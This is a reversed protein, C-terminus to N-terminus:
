AQIAPLREFQFEEEECQDLHMASLQPMVADEFPTFFAERPASSKPMLAWVLDNDSALHLMRMHSVAYKCWLRDHASGQGSAIIGTSAVKRRKGSSAAGSAVDGGSSAAAGAPGASSASGSPGAPPGAPRDGIDGLEPGAPGHGATDHGPPRRGPGGPGPGPGRPPLPQPEPLPQYLTASDVHYIMEVVTPRFGRNIESRLGAAGTEEELIQYLPHTKLGLQRVALAPNRVLACHRAWTSIWEPRAKLLRAASGFVGRMCQLHLPQRARACVYVCVCVSASFMFRLGINLGICPSHPMVIHLALWTCSWPLRLVIASQWSVLRVSWLSLLSSCELLISVLSSLFSLPCVFLFM